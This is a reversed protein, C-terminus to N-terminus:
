AAVRHRQSYGVFDSSIAKGLALAAVRRPQDPCGRVAWMGVSLAAM